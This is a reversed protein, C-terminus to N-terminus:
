IRFAKFRRSEKGKLGNKASGISKPPPPTHNSYELCFMRLKRIHPHFMAVLISEVRFVVEVYGM